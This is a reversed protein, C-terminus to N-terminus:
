IIVMRYWGGDAMRGRRAAGGGIRGKQLYYQFEISGGGLIKRLGGKDVSFVLNDKMSLIKILYYRALIFYIRMFGAYKKQFFGQARKERQYKDAGRRPGDRGSCLWVVMPNLELYFGFVL